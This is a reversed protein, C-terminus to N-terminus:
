CKEIPTNRERTKNNIPTDITEVTGYNSISMLLQRLTDLQEVNLMKGYKNIYPTLADMIINFLIDDISNAFENLCNYITNFNSQIIDNISNIKTNKGAVYHNIFILVQIKPSILAEFLVIFINELFNSLIEFSVRTNASSNNKQTIGLDYLTKDIIIKDEQLSANESSINTLQELDGQRYAGLTDGTQKYLGAHKLESEEILKDYEENSFEFFCDPITTEETDLVKNVIFRIKEKNIINDISLNLEVPLSNTLEGILRGIFTRKEFIKISNLVDANFDFITKNIGGEVEKGYSSGCINIKLLNSDFNNRELFECKIINKYSPELILEKNSNIKYYKSENFIYVIEGENYDNKNSNNYDNQSNFIYNVVYNKNYRNNWLLKAENENQNSKGKNIVYWLFANFDKSKYIENQPYNNDFYYLSGIKKDFPSIKLSNIVDIDTLKITIGEGSLYESINNTDKGILYYDLLNDPIFPNLSCSFLGKLNLALVNKFIEEIKDLLSSDEDSINELVKDVIVNPDIGILSMIDFMLNFTARNTQVMSGISNSTLMVPYDESMIRVSEINGLINATIPDYAM